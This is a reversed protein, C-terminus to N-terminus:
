LKPSDKKVSAVDQMDPGLVQPDEDPIRVTM